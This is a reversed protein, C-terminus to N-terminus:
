TNTVLLYILFYDRDDSCDARTIYTLYHGHSLFLEDKLLLLFWIVYSFLRFLKSASGYCLCAHMVDVFWM